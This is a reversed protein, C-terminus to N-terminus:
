ETEAIFNPSSFLTAERQKMESAVAAADEDGRELNQVINRYSEADRNQSLKFVTDLEEVEIEFAVIAKMLRSTYDESLNDFSTSSATNGNEFHLSTKRLVDILGEEGLFRLTGKAHVSMYNWTSAQHPNSYWTASVYTHPGTFVCLAAPNKEFAKHHDTNKMMHGTLLLKDDKKEIFVPIQTAVPKNNEDCGTTFAFPHKQIFEFVVNEDKEKYHPLNYM